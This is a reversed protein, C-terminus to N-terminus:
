PQVPSNYCTSYRASSRAFPDESPTWGDPYMSCQVFSDVWSARVPSDPCTPATVSGTDGPPPEYGHEYVICGRSQDTHSLDQPNDVRSPDAQRVSWSVAVAVIYAIGVAVGLLIGIRKM